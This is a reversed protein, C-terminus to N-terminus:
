AASDSTGVNKEGLLQAVEALFIPAERRVREIVGDHREIIHPHSVNSHQAVIIAHQLGTCAMAVQCQIQYDIPVPSADPPDDKKLRWPYGTLKIEGVVRGLEPHDIWCDPTAAVHECEPDRVLREYTTATWGHCAGPSDALNSIITEQMTRGWWMRETEEFTELGAKGMRASDRSGWKSCDLVQAAESGCVYSKRAELWADRDARADAIVILDSM